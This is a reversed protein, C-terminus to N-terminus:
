APSGSPTTAPHIDALQRGYSFAPFRWLGDTDPHEFGMLTLGPHGAEIAEGTHLHPGTDFAMNCFMVLAVWIEKEPHGPKVLEAVVGTRHEFDLAVFAPDDEAAPALGQRAAYDAAHENLSVALGDLLGDLGGEPMMLLEVAGAAIAGGGESVGAAARDDAARKEGPIITDAFAELTLLMVPDVSPDVTTV